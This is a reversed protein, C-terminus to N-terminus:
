KERTTPQDSRKRAAGKGQDIALVVANTLFREAIQYCDVEEINRDIDKTFFGRPVGVGKRRELSAFIAM